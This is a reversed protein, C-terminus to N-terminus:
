CYTMLITIVSPESHYMCVCVCMCMCVYVCMQKRQEQIKIHVTPAERRDTEGVRYNLSAHARYNFESQIAPLIFFLVGCLVTSLISQLDFESQIAM